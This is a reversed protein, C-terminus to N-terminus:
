YRGPYLKQFSPNASINKGLLYLILNLSLAKRHRGLAKFFLHFRLTLNNRSTFIM